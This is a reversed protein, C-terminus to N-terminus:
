CSTAAERTSQPASGEARTTVIAADAANASAQAHNRNRAAISSATWRGRQGHNTTIAASTKDHSHRCGKEIGVPPM